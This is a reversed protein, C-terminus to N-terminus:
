TLTTNRLQRGWKEIVKTQMKKHDTEKSMTEPGTSVHRANPVSKGVSIRYFRVFCYRIVVRFQSRISNEYKM